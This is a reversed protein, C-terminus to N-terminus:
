KHDFPHIMKLNMLYNKDRILALKRLHIDRVKAAILGRIEKLSKSNPKNLEKMPIGLSPIALINQPLIYKDDQHEDLYSKIPQYWPHEYSYSANFQEVQEAEEDTLWWPEDNLYAEVAAAWIGDIESEM